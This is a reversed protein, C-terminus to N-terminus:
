RRLKAIDEKLVVVIAAMGVIAPIFFAWWPFSVLVAQAGPYMSWDVRTANATSTVDVFFPVLATLIIYSLIVGGIIIAVLFIKKGM